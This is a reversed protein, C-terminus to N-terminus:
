LGEPGREHSRNGRRIHEVITDNHSDIVLASAHLEQADM